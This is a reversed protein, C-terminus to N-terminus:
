ALVVLLALLAFDVDLAGFGTADLLTWNLWFGEGDDEL